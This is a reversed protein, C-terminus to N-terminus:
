TSRVLGVFLGEIAFDDHQSPDIPAFATNRPLLRVRADRRELRKVTLEGDLRAVVTDGHQAEIVRRVAILDGDLIGDGQMSDGVVRLLYDPRTRFLAADLTLEREVGADAGIPAGAAVRGLLPVRWTEEARTRAAIAARRPLRIGRAVGPVLEILGQAALAELHKRAARPQRFGFSQAIEALTPAGEGRELRARLYALIQRQRDTPASRM